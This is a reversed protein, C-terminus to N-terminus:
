FARGYTVKRSMSKDVDRRSTDEDKYRTFTNVKTPVTSSVKRNVGVNTHQHSINSGHHTYKDPAEDEDENSEEYSEKHTDFDSTLGRFNNYIRGAVYSSPVNAFLGLAATAATHVIGESHGLVSAAVKGALYNTGIGTATNIVGLRIKEDMDRGAILGYAGMGINELTNHLAYAKSFDRYKAYHAIALSQGVVVGFAQGRRLERQARADEEKEHPTMYALLAAVGLVGGFIGLRKKFGTSKWIEEAESYHKNYWKSVSDKAKDFSSLGKSKVSEVSSSMNPTHEIPLIPASPKVPAFHEVPVTSPTVQTESPVGKLDKTPSVASPQLTYTPKLIHGLGSFINTVGAEAEENNAFHLTFEQADTIKNIAFKYNNKYNRDFWREAEGFGIIPSEFVGKVGLSEQHIPMHPNPTPTSVEIHPPPETHGQYPAVSPTALTSESHPTEIKPTVVSQLIEEQQQAERQKQLKAAKELKAHLQAKHIDEVTTTPIPFEPVLPSSAMAEEGLDEINSDM